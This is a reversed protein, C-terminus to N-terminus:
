ILAKKLLNSFSLSYFAGQTTIENWLMATRNFFHESKADDLSYKLYELLINLILLFLIEFSSHYM